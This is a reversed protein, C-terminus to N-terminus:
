DDNFILYRHPRREVLRCLELIEEVAQAEDHPAQDALRQVEPVVLRMQSRNFVTDDCPDICGFLLLGLASVRLSLAM